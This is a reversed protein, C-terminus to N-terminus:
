RLGELLKTTDNLDLSDTDEINTLGRFNTYLIVLENCIIRKAGAGFPNNKIIGIIKGLLGIVQFPGYSKGEHIKFWSSFDQGEIEDIKQGGVLQYHSIFERATRKRVKSMTSDYFFVEGKDEIKCLAYHSFDTKCFKEIGLAIINFPFKNKSKCRYAYIRAM